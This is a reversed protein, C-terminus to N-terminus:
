DKETEFEEDIKLDDISIDLIREIKKKHRAGRLTFFYKGIGTKPIELLYAIRTIDDRSMGVRGAMKNSFYPMDWGMQKAFNTYTGCKKIILQQLETNDYELKKSM